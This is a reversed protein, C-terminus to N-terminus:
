CSLSRIYSLASELDSFVEDHGGFDLETHERHSVGVGSDLTWQVTYNKGRASVDIWIASGSDSILLKWDPAYKSILQEIEKVDM